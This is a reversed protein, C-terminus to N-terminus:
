SLVVQVKYEGGIAGLSAGMATSTSKSLKSGSVTLATPDVQDCNDGIFNTGSCDCTFADDHPTGDVCQGPGCGFGNPGTCLWEDAETCAAWSMGNSARSCDERLVTLTITELEVINAETGDTIFVTFTRSEVLRPTGSIGGTASDLFLGAPLPQLSFFLLDAGSEGGESTFTPTPLSYEEDVIADPITRASVSTVHLANKVNLNM